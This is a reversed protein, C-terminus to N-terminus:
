NQQFDVSGFHHNSGPEPSPETDLGRKKKLPLSLIKLSNKEGSHSPSKIFVRTKGGM